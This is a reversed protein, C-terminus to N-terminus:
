KLLDKIEENIEYAKVIFWGDYTFDQNNFYSIIKPNSSLQVNARNTQFSIVIWSDDNYIKAPGVWDKHKLEAGVYLDQFTM